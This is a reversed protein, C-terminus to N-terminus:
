RSTRRLNQNARLLSTNLNYPEPKPMLDQLAEYTAEGKLDFLSGLGVLFANRKTATKRQSSM